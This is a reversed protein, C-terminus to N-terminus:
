FLFNLSGMITVPYYANRPSIPQQWVFSFQAGPMIDFVVAANFFQARWDSRCTLVEPVYYVSKVKDKFTYCDKKHEIYEYTFWFSVHKLFQYCNLLATFDWNMGPQIDVTADFPYLVRQLQHTPFPITKTKPAFYTVGGEFGVEVSEAFDFLFGGGGGVSAHGDNGFPLSLINRYNRQDGTPVSGGVWGYPTFLVDPWSGADDDEQHRMRFPEYTKQFNAIIRVDDFGNKEFACIPDSGLCDRNLIQSLNNSIYQDFVAQAACDPPTPTAPATVFPQILNGYLNTINSATTPTTVPINPISSLSYPGPATQGNSFSNTVTGTSSTSQTLGPITNVYNQRMNSMGSQVTIGVYDWFNINLELRLGAQQYSIPISFAGFYTTDLALANPDFISVPSATVNGVCVSSYSTQYFLLPNISSGATNQWNECTIDSPCTTSSSPCTTPPTPPSSTLSPQILGLAINQLCEKNGKGYFSEISCPTVYCCYDTPQTGQTYIYNGNDPNAGLFLGMINMTGRFDGLEFGNPAEGTVTGYETNGNYGRARVAKQFFGSINFGVFRQKNPQENKIRAKKLNLFQSNPPVMSDNASYNPAPDFHKLTTLRPHVLNPIMLCLAIIHLMNIPLQKM